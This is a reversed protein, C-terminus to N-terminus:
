SQTGKRARTRPTQSHAAAGQAYSQAAESHNDAYFIAWCSYLQNIRQQIKRHDQHLKKEMETISCGKLCDHLLAQDEPSCTHLFQSVLTVFLWDDNDIPPTVGDLSHEELSIEGHRNRQKYIRRQTEKMTIATVWNCFTTATTGRFDDMHAIVRKQISCMIQACQKITLEAINKTMSQSLWILHELRYLAPESEKDSHQLKKGSPTRQEWEWCLQKKYADIDPPMSCCYEDYTTQSNM